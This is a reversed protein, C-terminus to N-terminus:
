ESAAPAPRERENKLVEVDDNIQNMLKRLGIIERRQTEFESIPKADQLLVENVFNKVLSEYYGTILKWGKSHIIEEFAVGRACTEELQQKQADTLEPRDM